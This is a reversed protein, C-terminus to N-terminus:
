GGQCATTFHGQRHARTSDYDIGWPQRSAPIWVNCGTSDGAVGSTSKLQLFCAKSAATGSQELILIIDANPSYYNFSIACTYNDM